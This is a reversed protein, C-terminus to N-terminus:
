IWQANQRNQARVRYNISVPGRHTISTSFCLHAKRELKIPKKLCLCSPKFLEALTYPRVRLGEGHARRDDGADVKGRGENNSDIKKWKEM